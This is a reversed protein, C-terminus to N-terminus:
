KEAASSHFPRAAHTVFPTTMSNCERQARRRPSSPVPILNCHGRKRSQGHSSKKEFGVFRTFGAASEPVDDPRPRPLYEQGPDGQRSDDYNPKGTKDGVHQHM